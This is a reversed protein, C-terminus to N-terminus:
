VSDADGPTATQPPLPPQLSQAAFKLVAEIQEQTVDFREM